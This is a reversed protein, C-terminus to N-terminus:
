CYSFLYLLTISSCRLPWRVDIVDCFTWSILSSRSLSLRIITLSTLWRTSKLTPVICVIIWSFKVILLNHALLIGLISDSHWFSWLISNHRRKTWRNSRSPSSKGLLIVVSWVHILRYSGSDFSCDVIHFVGPDGDGLYNLTLQEVFFCINMMNKLMWPTM